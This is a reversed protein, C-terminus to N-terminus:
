VGTHVIVKHTTFALYILDSNLDLRQIRKCFVSATELYLLYYRCKFSSFM